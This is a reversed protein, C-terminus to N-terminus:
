QRKPLNYKVYPVEVDEGESDNCCLEFVIARVWPDIEKKSVIKVVESVPKSMREDRKAKPMFFSYLMTVGQSLMTIELKKENEFYDMFEQLTMERDTGPQVSDLEFRDWLTWETDYYKEKAALIPESFAFFPLALNAFGNKYKEVNTHGQVLKYLELGILGAVLSTTTAIAPIIRGAIGKSTLRDATKIGYNTARSNSCAVIFDIHGNSDDDKEFECPTIRLREKKFAEPAPIESLLVNLTDSDSMGEGQAQAQAEADTVAIKVGSKPEFAPVNVKAVIAKIVTRDKNKEIGYIEAKLNAAAEVFDIHMEEESNWVLPTPCKKPGSWFPSGTSTVQDPPFNHLLQAIQNHFLEQWLLRAWAVCDEFNSPREKVLLRSVTEMTDMPQAGPLALTKEKFGTEEIYQSATLPAQTFTGEFTDRAWQLTHEIANPFNKLTCIPISKEPPDQSSSYSETIKPLVVQTNGKTGLTGSELLPKNYYVCRRDMYTRAEVNDLANAVGDLPEFFDDNYINESEAGVRLEMSKYNAQPNMAHVAAVATVAKHKNIDWSRFLFQRNLNSKEIMDMDTVTVNGGDCGLGMMAFNKLLECGIAGAGVVFYKQEGLKKQFKQGFVAIQRDYRNGQAACEEESLSATDEPLCEVADFYLWQFIPHFKGSTAKMVEQAVIGGLAACMPSVEGACVMAFQKVLGEDEVQDGFKEKTLALFRDADARNWPRPLSGANEQQWTHLAQYCLHLQSPASFKAFDTIVPEMENMATALPKFSLVKPQKVQVVVGGREYQSFAKTDGIRFTYPGTVKIKFEQDNIETMGRVESFKVVDGDELGHRTEDLATVVAETDQTISAIMATVPSEGTTDVVNFRPGFDTFVQAYLGRCDAVIMAIDNSHTIENIRKQEVLSSNTLVVVTHEKILDESIAGTEYRMAVYSNLETARQYTAQARNAGIDSERLFFQSGLDAVEVKETDHLTVSKVGSLIVNKAIEMGLGKLGSILVSANQMREMAEKGLVFLQRSYLGEDIEGPASAGNNEAGNVGNGNEAMNGGNGNKAGSLSVGNGNAGKEVGFSDGPAAVIDNEIKRKKTPPTDTDPSAAALLDASM